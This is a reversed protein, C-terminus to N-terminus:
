LILLFNIFASARLANLLLEVNGDIFIILKYFIYLWRWSQKFPPCFKKFSKENSVLRPEKVAHNQTGGEHDTKFAEGGGGAKSVPLM